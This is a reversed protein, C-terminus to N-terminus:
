SNLIYYLTGKSSIGFRDMTKKYSKCSNYFERVERKDYKRVFSTAWMAKHRRIEEPIDMMNQSHTGLELNDPNFNGRNGDIHRVVFKKNFIKGGFKQYAALRHVSVKVTVGCEKVSLRPYGDKPTPRLEQGEPNYVKNGKVRYGKEYLAKERCM